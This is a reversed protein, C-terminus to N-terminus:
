IADVKSDNISFWVGIGICTGGMGYGTGDFYGVFSGLDRGELVSLVFGDM